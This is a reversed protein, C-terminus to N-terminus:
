NNPAGADLWSQIAARDCAPLAGSPPMTKNLVVRAKLNGNNAISLVEAAQSLNPSQAGTVHCGPIACSSQILPFITANFTVNATDCFNNPYLEEENDYYCGHLALVGMSVFLFLVKRYGM